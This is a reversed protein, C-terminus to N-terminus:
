RVAKLPDPVVVVPVPCRRVTAEAVSGVLAHALGTRGHTGLVLLNYGGEQASKLIAERPDGSELRANVRVDAAGVDSLLTEMEERSQKELFNDLSERVGSPHDIWADHTAYVPVKWVHLLDISASFRRALMLAYELAARSCPSFDTPVLIREIVSTMPAATTM